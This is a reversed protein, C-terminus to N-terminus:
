ARRAWVAPMRTQAVLITEDLAIQELEAALVDVEKRTTIGSDLPAPSAELFSYEWLRKEEGRLFSPQIL